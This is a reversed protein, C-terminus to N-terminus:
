RINPLEFISQKKKEFKKEENKLFIKWFKISQDGSGTAISEGDPSQTLYIVKNQHAQFGHIINMTDQNWLYIENRNDGQTTVFQNRDKSFIMNCIQSNTDVESINVLTTINWLKLKKDNKGGGSALVGSKVNSWALARIASEHAPIISIPKEEFLNWIILKNDNGGTALYNGENAWKIGCVEKVHKKYQKMHIKMRKDYHSISWDHSASTFINENEPFNSFMGIKRNHNFYSNVVKKKNIDFIFVEGGQFGMVLENGNKLWKVASVKYNLPNNSNDLNPIIFEFRPDKRFFENDLINIDPLDINKECDWFFIRDLIGIAIINKNSWDLTDQYFDDELNFADLIRYPNEYIKKRILNDEYNKTYNDELFEFNILNSFKKNKNIIEDISKGKFNYKKSNETLSLLYKYYNSNDFNFNRSTNIEKNFEQNKIENLNLSKNRKNYNQNFDSQSLKESKNHNNHNYTDYNDRDGYREGEIERDKEKDLYEEETKQLENYLFNIQRNCKNSNINSYIRKSKYDDDNNNNYNNNDFIITKESTLSKLYDFNLKSSTLNKTYNNNNNDKEKNNTINIFSNKSNININIKYENNNNNDNDNDSFNQNFNDFKNLSNTLKTINESNKKISNLKNKGKNSGLISNGKSLPIKFFFNNNNNNNFINNLNDEKNINIIDTMTSNKRNNNNNIFNNKLEEILNKNNALTRNRRSLISYNYSDDTDSNFINEKTNNKKKSIINKSCKNSKNNSNNNNENLYKKILPSKFKNNNNYYDKNKKKTSNLFNKVSTFENENLENTSLTDYTDDIDFISECKILNQEFNGNSLINNNNNNNYEYFKINKNDNKNNKEIYISNINKNISKKSKSKSLLLKERKKGLLNISKNKRKEEEFPKDKDFINYRLMKRYRKKTINLLDPPTKIRLSNKEDSETEEEYEKKNYNETLIERKHNNNSSSIFRDDLFNRILNTKRRM